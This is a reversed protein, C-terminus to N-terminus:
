RPPKRVSLLIGSCYGYCNAVDEALEGLDGPSPILGMPRLADDAAMWKGVAYNGAEGSILLIGGASLVRGAESVFAMVDKPSLRPDTILNHMHVEEFSRDGFALNRADMRHLFIRGTMGEDLMSELRLIDRAKVIDGSLPGVVRGPPLDIGHYELGPPLRRAFSSLDENLPNGIPFGGHGVDLIRRM